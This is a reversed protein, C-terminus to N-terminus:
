SVISSEYTEDNVLCVCSISYRARQSILVHFETHVTTVFPTSTQVGYRVCLLTSRCRLEASRTRDSVTVARNWSRISSSCQFRLNSDGEPYLLLNMHAIYKQGIYTPAKRQTSGSYYVLIWLKLIANNFSVLYVAKGLSCYELSWRSTSVFYVSQAPFRKINFISLHM